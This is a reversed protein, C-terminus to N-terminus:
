KQLKQIVGFFVGMIQDINLIFWFINDNNTCIYLFLHHSM